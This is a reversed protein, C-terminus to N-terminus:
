KNQRREGAAQALALANATFTPGGIVAVQRAREEVLALVGDGNAGVMNDLHREIESRPIPRSQMDSIRM